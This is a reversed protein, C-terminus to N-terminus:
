MATPGALIQGDVVAVLWARGDPGAALSADGAGPGVVPGLRDFGVGDPSRARLVRTGMASRGTYVMEVQELARARGPWTGGRRHVVVSPAEAGREDPQGPAGRGLVVGHRQWPGGAVSSAAAIRGGGGLGDDATYWLWRSPGLRALTPHDCGAADATGPEGPTLVPGLRQWTLIPREGTLPLGATEADRPVWASFLSWAPEGGDSRAGLGAYVVLLGGDSTPTACPSRVGLDEGSGAPGLELPSGVPAFGRPEAAATAARCVRWVGGTWGAYLLDWGVGERYVLCPRAVGDADAATTGAGWIGTLGM